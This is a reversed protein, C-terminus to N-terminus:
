SSKPRRRQGAIWANIRRELIDLPLAGDDLLANHFKRLDFADKLKGSAKARLGSIKLEGIKYALAQAPQVAYRDAEAAADGAGLPTHRMLFGVAKARGWRFAHVGTDVLLRCARLMEYSLQGFRKYVDDYFGMEHGLKEAYVGWGENFAMYQGHRRFEPLHTLEQARSIQLHHGPVAEHLSLVEMEYRPRSPLEHANVWFTGARSGDPAGAAYYCAPQAPAEYAPILSVGYTNRPLEAFFKPLEGDLRKCLDRYGTVLEGAAAYYFRPDARLGSAFEAPTGSFGADKLVRRVERGIRLVEGRGLEHIEAPSLNTTTMLRVRYRYFAEGDPLAAAGYETRCAPLYTKRLFSSLEALAPHISGGITRRAAAALRRRQAAPVSRPFRLFPRYLPSDAAEEVILRRIQSPVSSLAAAPMVWRQEIGKSMLAIIQAVHKPFAELSALCKEYDEVGSFPNLSLMLPFEVHISEAQQIPMLETPFQQGEVELMKNRLFLDYSLADEQSLESRAVAKILGLMRRQHAKREEIAEPSHDTLVTEFFSGATPTHHFVRGSSNFPGEYDERFLDHLRKTQPPSFM